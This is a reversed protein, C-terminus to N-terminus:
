TNTTTLLAATTVTTTTTAVCDIAVGPTTEPALGSKGLFALVWESNLRHETTGSLSYENLEICDGLVLEPHIAFSYPTEAHLQLTQSRPPGLAGHTLSLGLDWLGLIHDLNTSTRNIVDGRRALKCSNSGAKKAQLRTHLTFSSHYFRSEGM